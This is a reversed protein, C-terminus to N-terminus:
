KQNTNNKTFTTITYNPRNLLTIIILVSLLEGLNSASCCAEAQFLSSSPSIWAAAELSKPSVILGPVSISHFSACFPNVSASQASARLRALRQTPTTGIAQLKHHIATSSIGKTYAVEIIQGNWEAITNSVQQKAAEGWDNGHVVFNPRLKYLNPRYDPSDQAIVNDVGKINTVVEFRQEYNLFPVRKKQAVAQDTLLGVTVTGLSRATKIINLHGNHIIDACM